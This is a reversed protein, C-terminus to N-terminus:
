EYERVGKLRCSRPIRNQAATVNVLANITCIALAFLVAYVINPSTFGNSFFALAVTSLIMIYVGYAKVRSSIQILLRLLLGLILVSVISFVGLERVFPGLFTSANFGNLSPLNANEDDDYMAAGHVFRKVPKMLETFEGTVEGDIYCQKLVDFNLATYAYTWSIFDNDIRSEIVSSVSYDSAAGRAMQRADGWVAFCYGGVLAVLVLVLVGKRSFFFSGRLILLYCLFFLLVRIVVGRKLCFVCTLVIVLGAIWKVYKNKLCPLLMIITWMLSTLIGTGEGSAGIESSREAEFGETFFRLGTDEFSLVRLFVYAVIIFVMAYDVFSFSVKGGQRMDNPDLRVKRDAGIFMLVFAVPLLIFFYADGFSKSAQTASLNFNNFFLALFFLALFTSHIRIGNRAMDSFGAISIALAVGAIMINKLGISYDRHLLAFGVFFAMCGLWLILEYKAEKIKALREGM